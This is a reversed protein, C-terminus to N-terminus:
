KKRRILTEAGEPAGKLRPKLSLKITQTREMGYKGEGGLELVWFKAKAGATGEKTVGVHLEVDVAEVAFRLDEGDVKETLASLEERLKEIVTRLEVGDKM